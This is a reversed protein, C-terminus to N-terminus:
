YLDTWPGQNGLSHYQELAAYGPTVITSLKRRTRSALKRNLSRDTALYTIGFGGCGIVGALLYEQLRYAQPLANLVLGRAQTAPVYTSGFENPTAM